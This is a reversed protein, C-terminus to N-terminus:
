NEVDVSTIQTSADASSGTGYGGSSANVANMDIRIRKLLYLKNKSELVEYISNNNKIFRKNEMVLSDVKYTDNDLM